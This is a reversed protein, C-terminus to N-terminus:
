IVFEYLSNKFNPNKFSLKRLKNIIVLRNQKPNFVGEVDDDDRLPFYFPWLWVLKLDHLLHYRLHHLM